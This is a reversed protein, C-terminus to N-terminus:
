EEILLLPDSMMDPVLQELVEIINTIDADRSAGIHFSYPITSEWFEAPGINGPSYLDTHKYDYITFCLNTEPNWFLYEGSVKYGDAYDPGGFIAVLTAPALNVYGRLGTVVKGRNLDKTREYSM